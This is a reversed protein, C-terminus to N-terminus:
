NIYRKLQCQRADNVRWSCRCNLCQYTNKNIQIGNQKCGPCTSREHLWDRYTDLNNEIFEDNVKIKLQPALSDTAYDWAEREMRLLQIDRRYDDHGLAAHGAEHLLLYIDNLGAAEAPYYITQEAASWRFDDSNKLGIDPLTKKLLNLISNISPMTTVAM